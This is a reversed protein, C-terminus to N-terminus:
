QNDSKLSGLTEMMVRIQEMVIDDLQEIRKNLEEIQAKFQNNENRLQQNASQLAVNQNKLSELESSQTNSTLDSLSSSQQENETPNIVKDNSTNTSFTSHSEFTTTTVVGNYTVEVIYDGENEWTSSQRQLSTVVTEFTNDNSNVPVNEVYVTINEPSIIRMGIPINPILSGDITGSIEIPENHVYATKDTSISIKVPQFSSQSTNPLIGNSSSNDNLTITAESINSPNSTGDSNIAYVRYQYTLGSTLGTHSYTTDSAIGTNQILVSYDSDNSTKSEIKYGLIPSAGIDIPTSWSLDIRNQSISTAQLEVPPSPISNVTTTNPDKTNDDEQTSTLKQDQTTNDNEEPEYALTNALNESSAESIGIDNIAYVRYIYTTEPILNTHSYTTDTNKTNDIVVSYSSDNITRVEIKYGTIASNNDNNDPASWSLDIQTSSIPKIKLETPSDPVDDPRISSSDTNNDSDDNSSSSSSSTLTVTVKGSVDSSGLAYEAVIVFTYTEDTELNSILQSSSQSRASAIETYVDPAIEQKITYGQITQGYTQTPPNWNLEVSTPSIIKATVNTPIDSEDVTSSEDGISSNNDSSPTKVTASSSPESEGALNIASVRYAYVTDSILNTHSYTTDANGTNEIAISYNPNTDTRVEIKYGTIASNNNDPASWSLDIQTSSLVNARLNTPSGPVKDDLTSSEEINNETNSENDIDDNSNNSMSTSIEFETTENIDNYSVQLKYEGADWGVTEYTRSFSNDDNIPTYENVVTNSDIISIIEIEIINITENELDISGSVKILEGKSYVSKDTEIEAFAVNSSFIGISISFLILISLGLFVSLNNKHILIFCDTLKIM